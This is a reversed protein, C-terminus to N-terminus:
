TQRALQRAMDFHFAILQVMPVPRRSVRTHDKGEKTFLPPAWSIGVDFTMEAIESQWGPWRYGEYFSDLNSQLAFELFGSYGCGLDEWALADPAFYFVGGRGPGLGGGDMAFLGGLVDTAITFARDLAPARPSSGQGNWRRLDGKAGGGFIRLWGGDISLGGTHYAIAGLPSRTTVQVAKLTAAGQKPTTPLVRVHNRAERIWSQVVPWAPDDRELLQELSLTM